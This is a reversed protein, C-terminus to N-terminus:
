SLQLVRLTPGSTIRVRYGNERRYIEGDVVYGKVGEIVLERATQNFLREHTRKGLSYAYIHRITEAPSLACIYAYFNDSLPAPAFPSFWLTLKRITAAVTFLIGDYSLPRGDASVKEPSFAAWHNKVAVGHIIRCAMTFAKVPTPPAGTYYAEFGRYLMGGTFIFAYIEGRPAEPDEIRLIPQPNIRPTEGEKIRRYVPLLKKCQSVPNGKLGSLENTVSNMVGGRLPYFLPLEWKEERAFLVAETLTLHMTGDGGSVCLLDVGRDRFERLAAEVAPGSSITRAIAEGKLIGELVEPGYRGKKNKGSNPNVLIGIM